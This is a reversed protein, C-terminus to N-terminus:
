QAQKVDHVFPAGAARLVSSNAVMSSSFSRSSSEALKVMAM